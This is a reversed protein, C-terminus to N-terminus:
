SAVRVTPASGDSQVLLSVVEQWSSVVAVVGAARLAAARERREDPPVFMVNGITPVGAAIASQAGAVSDEVAVAHGPDVALAQLALAYVAPDPKSMPSPLSDEASFRREPPLLPALGTAEFCADLRVLASSSVAALTVFADLEHLPDLVEPDPELVEALHGSVTALEVAVWRELAAPDVEVGNAAALDAATTRFNKGTTRRRLEDATFRAHVGLEALLSRTVGVSADFAPEESPFLNGDADCLVVRVATLDVPQVHDRASSTSM